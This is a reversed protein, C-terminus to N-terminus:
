LTQLIFPLSELLVTGWDHRKRVLNQLDSDLESFGVLAAELGKEVAKIVVDFEVNPNHTGGGEICCDADGELVLHFM